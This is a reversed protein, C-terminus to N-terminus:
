LLLADSHEQAHADERQEQEAIMLQHIIEGVDEFVDGHDDTERERPMRLMQRLRHRM